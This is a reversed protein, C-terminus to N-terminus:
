VDRGKEGVWIMLYNCRQEESKGKLSGGFAFECHQQSSKWAAPLDGSSWNMKPMNSAPFGEM